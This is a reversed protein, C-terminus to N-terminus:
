RVTERDSTSFFFCLNNLQCQSYLWYNSIIEYKIPKLKTSTKSTSFWSFRSNFSFEFLLILLPFIAHQRRQYIIATCFSPLSGTWFLWLRNPSHLIHLLLEAHLWYGLHFYVGSYDIICSLVSYFLTNLGVESHLSFVLNKGCKGIINKAKPIECKFLNVRINCGTTSPWAQDSGLRCLLWVNQFLNWLLVWPMNFNKRTIATSPLKLSCKWKQPLHLYIPFFVPFCPLSCSFIYAFILLM